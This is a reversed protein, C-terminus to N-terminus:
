KKLISRAVFWLHMAITTVTGYHERMTRFRELLSARHNKISMGGALYRCLVRRTNYTTMGRRQGEKMIRIC